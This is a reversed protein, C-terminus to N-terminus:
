NFEFDGKVGREEVYEATLSGERSRGETTEISQTVSTHIRKKLETCSTVDHGVDKHPM